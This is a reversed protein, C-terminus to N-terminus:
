ISWCMRGVRCRGAKFDERIGDVLKKTGVVGVDAQLLANELEDIWSSMLSGLLLSKIGSAGSSGVGRTRELGQKFKSIVKGFM